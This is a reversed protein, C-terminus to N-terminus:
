HSSLIMASYDMKVNYSISLIHKTSLNFNQVCQNIEVDVPRTLKGLSWCQNIWPDHKELCNVQFVPVVDTHSNLLLTPLSPDTGEWTM